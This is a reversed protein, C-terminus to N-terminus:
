ASYSVHTAGMHIDPPISLISRTGRKAAATTATTATRSLPSGPSTKGVPDRRQQQRRRRRRSIGSPKTRRSQRQTQQQTRRQKDARQLAVGASCQRAGVAQTMQDGGSPRHHAGNTTAFRWDSRNPLHRKSTAKETLRVRAVNRCYWCRASRADAISM